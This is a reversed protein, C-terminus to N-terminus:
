LGTNNAVKVDPSVLLVEFPRMVSEGGLEAGM